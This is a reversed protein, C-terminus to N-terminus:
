MNSTQGPEAQPGTPALGERKGQVADECAVEGAVMGEEEKAKAAPMLDAAVQRPCSVLATNTYPKIDDNAAGSVLLEIHYM